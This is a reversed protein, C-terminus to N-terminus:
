KNLSELLKPVHVSVASFVKKWEKNHQEQDINSGVFAGPAFIYNYFPMQSM